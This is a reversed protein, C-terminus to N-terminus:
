RLRKALGQLVQSKGFALAAEQRAEIWEATQRALTLNIDARRQDAWRQYRLGVEAAAIEPLDCGPAPRDLDALRALSAARAAAASQLAALRAELLLSGLTCLRDIQLRQDPHTM